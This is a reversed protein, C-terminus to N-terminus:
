SVVSNFLLKITTLTATKTSVEGQCDLRDKVRCDCIFRAYTVKKNHPVEHNKIFQM